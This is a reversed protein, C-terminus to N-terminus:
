SSSIKVSTHSNLLLLSILSIVLGSKHSENVLLLNLIEVERRKACTAVSPFNQEAHTNM